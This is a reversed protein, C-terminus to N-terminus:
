DKSEDAGGDRTADFADILRTLLERLTADEAETFASGVLREVRIARTPMACSRRAASPSTPKSCLGQAAAVEGEAVPEFQM